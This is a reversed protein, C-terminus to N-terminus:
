LDSVSHAPGARKFIDCSAFPAMGAEAQSDADLACGAEVPDGMQRVAERVSDPPTMGEREYSEAQELIHNQLEERIMPRAKHCRIQDTVSNLYESLEM